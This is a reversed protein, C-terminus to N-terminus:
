DAIEPAAACCDKESDNCCDKEESSVAETAVAAAPSVSEATSNNSAETASGCATLSTLFALALASFIIKNSKM